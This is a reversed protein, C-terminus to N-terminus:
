YGLLNRRVHLLHEICLQAARAGDRERLAAVLARHARQYGLRREPTASRRKLVGWEGQARADNLRQFVDAIFSNHTAAAIAEHLRSDWLEFEDISSALEARDCCAEMRAFDATTANAVVLVVIAPELVIRASM